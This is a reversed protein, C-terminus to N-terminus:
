AKVLSALAFMICIQYFAPLRVFGFPKNSVAVMHNANDAAYRYSDRAEEEVVHMIECEVNEQIKKESYGRCKVHMQAACGASCHYDFFVARHRYTMPVLM